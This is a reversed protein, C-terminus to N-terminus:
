LLARLMPYDEISYILGTKVDNLGEAKADFTVIGFSDNNVSIVQLTELVIMPMSLDDDRYARYKFTAPQTYDASEIELKLEDKYDAFTIQITQDLDATVNSRNLEFVEHMYQYDLADEHKVLIGDRVNRVFRFVKSFSPHSIEICDIRLLGGKANFFFSTYDSM